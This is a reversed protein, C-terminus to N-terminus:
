EYTNLASYLESCFAIAFVNTNQIKTTMAVPQDGTLLTRDVTYLIQFVSFSDLAWYLFLLFGECFVCDASM